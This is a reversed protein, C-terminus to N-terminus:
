CPFSIMVFSLVLVSVASYLIVKCFSVRTLGVGDTFDNYYLLTLLLDSNSSFLILLVLNPIHFSIVPYFKYLLVTQKM